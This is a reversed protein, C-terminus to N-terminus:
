SHVVSTVVAVYLAFYRRLNSCLAWCNVVLSLLTLLIRVLSILVSIGKAGGRGRVGRVDMLGNLLISSTRRERNM